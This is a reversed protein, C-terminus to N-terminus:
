GDISDGQSFLNLLFVFEDEPTTLSTTQGISNEMYESTVDLDEFQQEFKDM